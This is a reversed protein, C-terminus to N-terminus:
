RQLGTTFTAQILAAVSKHDERRSFRETVWQSLVFCAGCGLIVFLPWTSGVWIRTRYDGLCATPLFFIPKFESPLELLHIWRTLHELGLPPQVNYVSPVAAICQYFGVLAKVKYRMGADHWIARVYRVWRILRICANPSNCRRGIVPNVSMAALLMFLLMACMLVAGRAAMKGCDHCRAHLKDFYRSYAPGDCLECRPGRHGSACDAIEAAPASLRFLQVGRSLCSMPKPHMNSNASAKCGDGEYGADVGGHCPDWGGSAKCRHTERTRTSHRWYGKTLILTDLTANLSCNVGPIASCLACQTAPSGGNHRFYGEACVAAARMCDGTPRSGTHLPGLEFRLLLVPANPRVVPHLNALLATAVTRKARAALWPTSAVLPQLPHVLLVTLTPRMHLPMPPSLKSARLTLRPKCHRVARKQHAARAARSATSDGRARVRASAVQKARLPEM